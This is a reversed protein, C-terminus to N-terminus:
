PMPAVIPDTIAVSVATIGDATPTSMPHPM